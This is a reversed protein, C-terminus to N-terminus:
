VDPLAEFLRGEYITMLKFLNTWFQVVLSLPQGRSIMRIRQKVDGMETESVSWKEIGVGIAESSMCIEFREWSRVVNETIKKWSQSM